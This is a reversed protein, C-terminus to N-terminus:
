SGFNQEFIFTFKEAVRSAQAAFIRATRNKMMGGLASFRECTGGLSFPARTKADRNPLM